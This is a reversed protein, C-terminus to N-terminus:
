RLRVLSIETRQQRPDEPPIGSLPLYFGKGEAIIKHKLPYAQLYDRVVEARQQSLTQNYAASGTRSTHGVVQVEVSQPNFEKIEQALKNLTQKGTATLETSGERFEVKGQVKLIGIEEPEPSPSPTPIGSSIPRLKKLREAVEPYDAKLSNYQNQATQAAEGILKSTFLDAPNKPGQNIRGSLLLVASISDIRQELTGDTLWESAELATFFEIGQWVADAEPPSLNGDKAIQDRLKSPDFANGNIRRYYAELFKSVTEPYSEIMRNSAVIADVIANPVDKSSLVVTYGQQRAQTVFPEWLVAIAVKEKEDQLLKWADKADPVKIQEFDSLNFDEFKTDLVLALFESPTDGAFSIALKNGQSREKQSLQRLATLSKLSPYKKTNLVVADAGVTRDILGVIKGQPQHQIFQDLTTAILDAGGQSLRQARKAQDFEDEYRLSIGVKQLSDRLEVSRFTSYGSFTDALIIHQGSYFPKSDNNRWLKNIGWSVGIILGFTIVVALILAAIKKPQSM